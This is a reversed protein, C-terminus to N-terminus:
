PCAAKWTITRGDMAHENLHHETSVLLVRDLALRAKAIAAANAPHPM